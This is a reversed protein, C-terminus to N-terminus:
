LQLCTINTDAIRIGGNLIKDAVWFCQFTEGFVLKIVSMKIIFM